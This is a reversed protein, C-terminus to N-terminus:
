RASTSPSPPPRRPALRPAATASTASVSPAVYPAATPRTASGDYNYIENAVREIRTAMTQLAQFYAAVNKAPEDIRPPAGGFQTREKLEEILDIQTVLRTRVEEADRSLAEIEATKQQLYPARQRIERDLDAEAQIGSVRVGAGERALLKRTEADPGLRDAAEQLLLIIENLNKQVAGPDEQTHKLDLVLEQMRKDREAADEKLRTAAEGMAKSTSKPDFGGDDARTTATAVADSQPQAYGDTAVTLMVFSAITATLVVTRMTM